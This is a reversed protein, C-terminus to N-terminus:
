WRGAKTLIAEIFETKGATYAEMTIDDRAGLDRKLAAYAERDAEDERLHDGLVLHRDLERSGDVSAYLHHPAWDRKPDRLPVDPGRRRFAEGGMAGRDGEYIYGLHALQGIMPGLHADEGIVVHIDIIPKAALDPVATSGVHEVRVIGGEEPLEELLCVRVEEFRAPWASNYDSITIM